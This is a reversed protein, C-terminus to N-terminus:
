NCSYRLSKFVLLLYDRVHQTLQLTKYLRELPLEGGCTLIVLIPRPAMQGSTCGRQAPPGHELSLDDKTAAAHIGPMKVQTETKEEANHEIEAGHFHNGEFQCSTFTPM